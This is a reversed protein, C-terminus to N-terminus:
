ESKPHLEPTLLLLDIIATVSPINKYVWFDISHHLKIESNETISIEATHRGVSDYNKPIDWAFSIATPDDVSRSRYIKVLKEHTYQMNGHQDKINIKVNPSGDITGFNNVSAALFLMNGSVGYNKTFFTEIKFEKFLYETYGGYQINFLLSANCEYLADAPSYFERQLDIYYTKGASLYYPGVINKETLWWRNVLYRNGYEDEEQIGAAPMCYYISTDKRPGWNDNLSEYSFYYYGDKSVQFKFFDDNDTVCAWQGDIQYGRPSIFGIHSNIAYPATIRGLDLPKDFVRNVEVDADSYAKEWFVTLQHPIQPSTSPMSVWVFIQGPPVPTKMDSYIKGPVLNVQRRITEPLFLANPFRPDGNVPPPSVQDAALSPGAFPVAEAYPINGLYCNNEEYPWLVEITIYSPGDPDPDSYHVVYGLYGDSPIAIPGYMKYSTPSEPFTWHLIGPAEEGYATATISLVCVFLVAPLLFVRLNKQRRESRDM